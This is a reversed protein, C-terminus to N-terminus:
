APFCGRRADLQDNGNEGSGYGVVVSGENSVDLARSLFSGGSLDGLAVIQSQAEVAFCFFMFAALLIRM